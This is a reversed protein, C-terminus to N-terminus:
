NRKPRGFLGKVADTAAETAKQKVERKAGQGAQAMLAKADPRVKPDDMTGSVQIPVPVWGEDDALVDLASAGIGEVDLGERPTAAVLEFKIPGELSLTGELDLRVSNTVLRFPALTVVNNALRFKMETAQYPSGVVAQKGLAKDIGSFVAVDPFTGEGLQVGGEAEVDKTEAGEGLAKLEVVAPGFGETAGVFGNVDLPDAQANMSYTFPVPNFDVLMDARFPGHDTLFSLETMDFKADALHFQSQVERIELTDAVVKDIALEGDATVAALTRISPDFTLDNMEFNLGEIRTEGDEGKKKMVVTGDSVAIQQIDLALGGAEADADAPAAEGPPEAEGAAAPSAQGEATEGEVLEIQPREFLIRDIAITGSLLPLLRHEFVLRDLTLHLERAQTVSSAEFGEMVLGRLLNLRFGTATMEVGTAEGAKDLLAQGLEPSDYDRVLLFVVLALVVVVVILLKKIM